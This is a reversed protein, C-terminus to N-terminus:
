AGGKIHSETVLGIKGFKTFLRFLCSEGYSPCLTLDAAGDTEDVWTEITIPLENEYAVDTTYYYITEAEIM